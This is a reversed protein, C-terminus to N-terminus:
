ARDQVHLCLLLILVMRPQPINKVKESLPVSNKNSSQISLHRRQLTLSSHIKRQDEQNMVQIGKNFGPLKFLKKFKRLVRQSAKITLLMLDMKSNISFCVISLIGMGLRLAGMIKNRKRGKILRLIIRFLLRSKIRISNLRFHLRILWCNLHILTVQKYKGLIIWFVILVM